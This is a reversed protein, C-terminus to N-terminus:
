VEKIKNDIKEMRDKDYVFMQFESTEGEKDICSVTVTMFDNFYNKKVKVDSIQHVSININSM